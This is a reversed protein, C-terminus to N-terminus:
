THQALIYIPPSGLLESIVRVLQLYNRRSNYVSVTGQHDRKLAGVAFALPRRPVHAELSYVIWTKCRVLKRHRMMPNIRTGMLQDSVVGDM